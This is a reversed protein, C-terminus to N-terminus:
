KQQQIGQGTLKKQQSAIYEKHLLDVFRDNKILKLLVDQMQEKSLLIPDNAPAQVSQAQVRMPIHQQQQQYYPPMQYHGGTQPRIYQQPHMDQGIGHPPVYHHGFQQQQHGASMHQKQYIADNTSTNENLNMKTQRAQQQQQGDSLKEELSDLVKAISDREEDKSFWVGRIGTENRFILYQELLQYEFNEEIPQILNTPNLRNIVLLRYFPAEKRHVVFLAGEVNEREWNGM